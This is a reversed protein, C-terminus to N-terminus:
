RSEWISLCVRWVGRDEGGVRSGRFWFWFACNFRSWEADDIAFWGGVGNEHSSDVFVGALYVKVGVSVGGGWCAFLATRLVPFNNLVGSSTTGDVM